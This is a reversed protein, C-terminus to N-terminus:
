QGGSVGPEEEAPYSDIIETAPERLIKMITALDSRQLRQEALMLRMSVVIKELDKQPSAFNFKFM